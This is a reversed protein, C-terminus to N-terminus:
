RFIKGNYSALKKGDPSKLIWKEVTDEDIPAEAQESMFKLILTKLQAKRKNASSVENTIDKYEKALRWMKDNAVITGKPDPVLKKIDLFNVPEPPISKLINKEWFDVYRNLIMEQLETNQNILYQHYYGMEDLSKSWQSIFDPEHAFDFVFQETYFDEFEDVRKPFVLVSVICQTCGTCMMQHQVQIQYHSPIKDTLPEGWSDGFTLANTTKGEHLIPTGDYRGDIHCTIFSYDKEPADFNLKFNDCRALMERNVIRAKGKKEAIKIVENEFALGYRMADSMQFEPLEFKNEKCFGPTRDEMIQLWVDLPTQYKSLGIVAAGRSGSIGTPISGM